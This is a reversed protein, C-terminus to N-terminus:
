IKKIRRVPHMLPQYERLPQYDRIMDERRDGRRDRWDGRRDRRTQGSGAGGNGGMGGFLFMYGFALSLGTCWSVLLGVSVWLSVDSAFGSLWGGFTFRNNTVDDYKESFEKVTNTVNGLDEQIDILKVTTNIGRLVELDVGTEDKLLDAFSVPGDSFHVRSFPKLPPSIIEVEASGEMWTVRNNQYCIGRHCPACVTKCENFDKNCRIFREHKEPKYCYRGYCESPEYYEGNILWVTYDPWCPIGDTSMKPMPIIGRVVTKDVVGPVAHVIFFKRDKYLATGVTPFESLGPHEQMVDLGSPCSGSKKAAVQRLCNEVGRAMFKTHMAAQMLQHTVSQMQVYWMQYSAMVSFKMNTDRLAIETNRMMADKLLAFNRNVIDNNKQIKQEQESIRNNVLAINKDLKNSVEVLKNSVAVHSNKLQDM